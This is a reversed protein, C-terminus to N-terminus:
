CGVEGVGKIMERRDGNTITFTVNLTTLEAGRRSVVTFNATVTISGASYIRTFKDRPRYGRSAFSPPENVRTLRLRVDRGDINMLAWSVDEGTKEFFLYERPKAKTKSPYKIYYGCGEVSDTSRIKGIMSAGGGLVAVRAAHGTFLRGYDMESNSLGEYTVSVRTGPTLSALNGGVIVGRRPNETDLQLVYNGVGVCIVNGGGACARSPKIVGTITGSGLKPKAVGSTQAFASVTFLLIISLAFSLTHQM